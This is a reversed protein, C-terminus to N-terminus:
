GRVYERDGLNKRAKMKGILIKYANRTEGQVSCAGDRQNKKTSYTLTLRYFSNGEQREVRPANKHCYHVCFNYLTRSTRARTHRSIFPITIDKSVLLTSQKLCKVPRWRAM